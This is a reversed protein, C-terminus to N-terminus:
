IPADGFSISSSMVDSISSAISPTSQISSILEELEVLTDFTVIVSSSHYSISVAIVSILASTSLTFRGVSASSGFTCATDV